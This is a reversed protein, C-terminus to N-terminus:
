KAIEWVSRFKRLARCFAVWKGPDAQDNKSLRECIDEPRCFMMTQWDWYRPYLLLTGAILDNPTLHKGRGEIFEKDTTLGWGAYFPKGYVVVKKNRLIAEFGSLSTLTHLEDIHVLLKGMPYLDASMDSYEKLVKESVKGKRNGSLVDPHTKFLIFADPNEQRVRKLLDTNTQTKCGKCGFKISADDEVQGVVLIIKKDAPFNIDPDQGTVNYKTLKKEVIFKRLHEARRRIEHIDKREQITNLIGFLDSPSYPDYYIGGHDLVLSYPLNFDSGLGASRIFGDEVRTLLIGDNEPNNDPEVKSSWVNLDAGEEKAKELGQQFDKVFFLASDRGSLFARLHPKKWYKFGVAVHKGSNQLMMQHQVDLLDIFEEIEILQGKIPNLYRCLRIYGSAFIEEINALRSRRECRILDKTLGWGAYFPMGYVHVEKGLLLADFGLQSTVVYVKDVQELTSLPSFNETLYHIGKLQEQFYGKKKGYNVDPHSKVIISAQPNDSIAESLMRNFSESNAQGLLVSADERTQDVVLVCPQNDPLGFHRRLWKKPMPPAINYKSLDRDIIAEILKRSRAHWEPTMWRDATNILDELYSPCTSDYYVGIPDVTLSLPRSEFGLGVSRLFGDELSLYDLRNDKAFQRAKASTKKHGWGVVIEKTSSIEESLFIDLGPLAEIGKSFVNIM